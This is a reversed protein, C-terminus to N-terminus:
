IEVGNQKMENKKMQEEYEKLREKAEKLEKEAQEENTVDELLTDVYKNGDNFDDSQKKQAEELNKQAIEVNQKLKELREDRNPEPVPEPTTKAAPQTSAESKPTSAAPKKESKPTSAQEPKPKAEKSKYKALREKELESGHKKTFNDLALKAENMRAKSPRGTEEMFKELEQSQKNGENVNYVDKMNQTQAKDFGEVIALNKEYDEKAEKYEREYDQLTKTNPEEPKPTPPKPTPPKPTPAPAPKEEPQQAAAESEEIINTIKKEKGIVEKVKPDTKKYMEIFVPIEDPNDNIYDAMEELIEKLSRTPNKNGGKQIKKKQKGAGKRAKIAKKLEEFLNILKASDEAAEKGRKKMMNNKIAIAMALALQKNLNNGGSSSMADPQKQGESSKSAADSGPPAADSGPSGAVSSHSPNGNPKSKLQDKAKAIESKQEHTLDVGELEILKKLSLVYINSEQGDFKLKYIDDKKIANTKINDNVREYDMTKVDKFRWFEANINVVGYKKNLCIHKGPFLEKSDFVYVFINDLNDNIKVIDEELANTNKKYFIRRKVSKDNDKLIAYQEHEAFVKRSKKEEPKLNKSLASYINYLSILQKKHILEYLYHAINHKMEEISFSEFKGGDFIIQAVSNNAQNNLLIFNPKEEPSTSNIDNLTGRLYLRVTEGNEISKKYPNKISIPM